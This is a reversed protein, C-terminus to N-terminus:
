KLKRVQKRKVFFHEKLFIMMSYLSKIKNYKLENKYIRFNHSLMSFKNGSVSDKRVRYYALCDTIGFATGAKQVANLWLAWDQRKRMEPAYIKGLEAVSYMGTLNGIYNSKLLKEYSLFPLSEIIIPLREGHEKILQYSSYSVSIKNKLMFDIQVKLKRPKWLDDADLFAIYAGNAAEIATNRAIGAGKNKNFRFVHIRKDQAAFKELISFSADTSNDDVLLLEWNTYTQKIVSEISEQIFAEANHVPTIVSILPTKEM